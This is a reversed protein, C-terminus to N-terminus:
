YAIRWRIQRTGTNRITALEDNATFIIQMHRAVRLESCLAWVFVRCQSHRCYIAIAFTVFSHTRLVILVSFSLSRPQSAPSNHRVVVTVNVCVQRLVKGYWFGNYRISKQSMGVRQQVSALLGNLGFRSLSNIQCQTLITLGSYPADVNVHTVISNEWVFYEDVTFQCGGIGVSIWIKKAKEERWEFYSVYECEIM